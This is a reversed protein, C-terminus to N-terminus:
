AIFFPHTRAPLPTLRVSNLHMRADEGLLNISDLALFSGLATVILVKLVPMSAAVFLNVLGM